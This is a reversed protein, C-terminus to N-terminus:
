ARRTIIPGGRAPGWRRSGGDVGKKRRSGCGARGISVLEDRSGLGEAASQGRSNAGARDLEPGWVERDFEDVSHGREAVGVAGQMAGGFIRYCCLTGNGDEGDM